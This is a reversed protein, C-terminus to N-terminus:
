GSSMCNASHLYMHSFHVFVILGLSACVCVCLSASRPCMQGTLSGSYSLALQSETLKEGEPIPEGVPWIHFHHTGRDVGIPCVCVYVSLCVCVCTQLM